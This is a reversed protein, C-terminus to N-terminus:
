PNRVEITPLNINIWGSALKYVQDLMRIRDLLSLGAKSPGIQDHACVIRADIACLDHCSIDLTICGHSLAASRNRSPPNFQLNGGLKM